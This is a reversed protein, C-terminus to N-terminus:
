FRVYAKVTACQEGATAPTITYEGVSAPVIFVEAYHVPFPEFSDAPSEVWVESGEVLCLVNVGNQTHHETKKTFWHRRTEIFEREHLGTHEEKWGDGEEIPQIKNVLNEKTWKTTRNWQIVNKGHEINIPRPKGDLGVRGWDWLKFTFIYPTASIELVM